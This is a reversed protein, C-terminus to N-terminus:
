QQRNMDFDTALSFEKCTGAHSANIAGDVCDGDINGGAIASRNNPDWTWLQDQDALGDNNGVSTVSAGWGFNALASIGNQALGTRFYGAADFALEFTTSKTLFVTFQTILSQESSAQGSAGLQNLSVIAQVNVVDGAGPGTADGVSTSAGAAYQGLVNAAGQTVGPTFNTNTRGWLLPGANVGAVTGDGVSNRVDFATGVANNVLNSATPPGAGNLVVSSSGNSQPNAQITLTSGFLTSIAAGTSGAVGDGVRIKFNSVQLLSEAIGSTATLAFASGGYSLALAATVSTAIKNLRIM